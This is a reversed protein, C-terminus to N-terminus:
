AAWRGLPPGKAANWAQDPWMGVVRCDPLPFRGHVRPLAVQRWKGTTRGPVGDRGDRGETVNTALNGHTSGQAGSDPRNRGIGPGIRRDALTPPRCDTLLEPPEAAWPGLPPVKAATRAQDPWM